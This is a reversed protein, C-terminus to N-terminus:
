NINTSTRTRTAANPAYNGSHVFAFKSAQPVLDDVSEGIVQLQERLARMHIMGTIEPQNRRGRGGDAYQAIEDGRGEVLVHAGVANSRGADGHLPPGNAPERIERSVVFPGAPVESAAAHHGVEGAELEGAIPGGAISGLAFSQITWPRNASRSSARSSAMARSLRAPTRGMHM